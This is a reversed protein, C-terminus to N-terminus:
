PVPIIKFIGLEITAMLHGDPSLVAVYGDPMPHKLLLKKSKLDYVFVQNYYPWTGAKTTFMSRKMLAMIALRTHDDSLGVFSPM